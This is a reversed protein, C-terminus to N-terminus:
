RRYSAAEIRQIGSQEQHAKHVQGAVRTEESCVLGPKVWQTLRDAAAVRPLRSGGAPCMADIRYHSFEYSILKRRTEQSARVDAEFHGVPSEEL